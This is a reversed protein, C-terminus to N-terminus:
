REATQAYPFGRGGADICVELADHEVSVALFRASLPDDERLHHAHGHAVVGDVAIGDAFDGVQGALALFRACGVQLGESLQPGLELIPHVSLGEISRGAVSVAGSAVRPDEVDGVDFEAGARAGAFCEGQAPTIDIQAGM